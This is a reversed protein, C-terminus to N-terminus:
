GRSCPGEISSAPTEAEFVATDKGPTEAKLPPVGELSTTTEAESKGRRSLSGVRKRREARVARSSRLDLPVRVSLEEEPPLGSTSAPDLGHEQLFVDLASFDGEMMDSFWQAPAKSPGRVARSRTPDDAPNLASAVFGYFGRVKYHVQDPISARLRKNIETSSSRGKIMAALSVQSDQLHVYFSGPKRKGVKIEAALAADLEGLNIHRRGAVKRVKGFQEFKLCSVAEQWLPHIEYSGEPLQEDDPLYSKERLYAKEPRLLRSWLGKALAHRHMEATATPPLVACVAAEAKSSADSAVILDSPELRFDIHSLCILAICSLLEDVLASSLKVIDGRRRGRQASYVEELASMFRRSLAFISVLSGALVELLGVTAFGSRCVELLIFTLPVARSLNPRAWGAEGSVTIGWFSCNTSGQVSKGEHRPLGVEEYAAHIVKMLESCGGSANDAESPLAEALLLDDIMLGAFWLDRQPRQKLTIFHKLRIETKQLLVGLHATQAMAVANLDGMAMTALLPVLFEEQWFNPKFAALSSVQEPKVRLKFCNRLQRSRSIKFAHYFERLDEAHLVLKQGAPLFFHLLQSVSGLSRIWRDEGQELLNPARADLIMRDRQGDKPVSFAGNEYGEFIESVGAFSLRQTSDLLKLFRVKDREAIRVRVSPPKPLGDEFQKLFARPELFRCRNEEDLFPAPDFSPVKWFKLREPQLAKAVHELQSQLRGVVEGPSGRHGCSTQMGSSSRGLYGKLEVSLPEVARELHGMLKEVSEVKAASRGMVEATVPPERNWQDVLPTVNKVFRWQEVNLPPALDQCPGLM